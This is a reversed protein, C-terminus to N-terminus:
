IRPIRATRPPRFDVDAPIAEFACTCAFARARGRADAEDAPELRLDIMTTLYSANQDKRPHGDLRFTAGAALGYCAAEGAFFDQGCTQEGLRIRSLTDGDAKQSYGGPYEFRELAGHPYSHSASESAELKAKPDTYDYDKLTVKGTAMRSVTEWRHVHEKRAAEAASTAFPISDYGPFPKHSTHSDTFVVKHSGDAHTAHYSIGFQQTLRDVFNRHTEAYQVFFELQPLSGVVGSCEYDSYGLDDFVAALIDQPKKQQFIRCDSALDLLALWPVIVLRYRFADGETGTQRAERCVGNFHRTGGAPLPVSVTVGQGLLKELDVNPDASTLDLTGEFPRGLSEQFRFRALALAGDGLPTNVSVGQVISAATSVPAAMAS